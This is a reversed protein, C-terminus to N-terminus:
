SAAALARRSARKPGKGPVSFAITVKLDISQSGRKLVQIQLNQADVASIAETLALPLQIEQTQQRRRSPIDSASIVVGEIEFRLKLAACLKRLTEPTPTAEGRRYLSLSQKSIGAKKAARSLEGWEDSITEKLVDKLKQRLREENPSSKKRGAGM